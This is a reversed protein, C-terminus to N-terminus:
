ESRRRGGRQHFVYGIGLRQLQAETDPVGELIFADLRDNAYPYDYTLGEYFLVPLGARNALEVACALGHNSRVRRNVQAWYLM